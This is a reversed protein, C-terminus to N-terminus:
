SPRRLGRRDAIERIVGLYSDMAISEHWYEKFARAGAQGLADRHSRDGALSALAAGLEADTKFLLGGQSRVVIEPFPGLERAIIPTGQRFAELVVMPFVEYCVSPVVVAVANRYLHRLEDANQHGLFRIGAQRAPSGASSPSM